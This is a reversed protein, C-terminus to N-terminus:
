ERVACILPRNEGFSKAFDQWIKFDLDDFSGILRFTEHFQGPAPDDFSRDSPQVTGTSQGLVPLVEVEGGEQEQTECGNAQHQSLETIRRLVKPVSELRQPM